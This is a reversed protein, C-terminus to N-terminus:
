KQKNLTNKQHKYLLIKNININEFKISDTSM